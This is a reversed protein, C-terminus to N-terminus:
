DVKLTAITNELIYSVLLPEKDIIQIYDNKKGIEEKM